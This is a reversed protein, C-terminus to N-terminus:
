WYKSIKKFSFASSPKPPIYISRVASDFSALCATELIPSRFLIFLITKDIDRNLQSHPLPPRMDSQSLPHSYGHPNRSENNYYYNQCTRTIESNQMAGSPIYCPTTNGACVSLPYQKALAFYILNIGTYPRNGPGQKTTQHAVLTRLATNQPLLM